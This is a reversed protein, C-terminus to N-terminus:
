ATKRKQEAKLLDVLARLQANDLSELIEPYNSGHIRFEERIATLVNEPTWNLASRLADVQKALGSLQPGAPEDVADSAPRRTPAAAPMPAPESTDDVEDPFDAETAFYGTAALAKKVAAVYARKQAMAEVVFQLSFPDPNPRREQWVWDQRGNKWLKINRGTKATKMEAERSKDPKTAEVWVYAYKEERTHCSREVDVIHQGGRKVTARYRYFFFGSQWDENRAECHVSVQLGFFLALKEAGPQFLCRNKTGPIVGYDAGSFDKGEKRPDMPVLLESVLETFLKYRAVAQRADLAPALYTQSIPASEIPAADVITLEQNM